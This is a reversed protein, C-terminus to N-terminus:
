HPQANGAREADIRAKIALSFKRWDGRQWRWLNAMGRVWEDATFALWVGVLGLPTHLGLGWALPVALGWMSFSGMVVPFKTDGAARLANIVILNFTRGTEVLVCLRMIPVGVALYDAQHTFIRLIPEAFLTVFIGLTATICWGVILSRKLQRAAGALDGAGVQYGIVVETALGLAQGCVMILGSVQRVFSQAVMAKAGLLGIVKIILMFSLHYSVNEAAAPAGIAIVPKLRQWNLKWLLAPRWVLGLRRRQLYWIGALFGSRSVLPVIALGVMKDQMPAHWAYLVLYLGILQLGYSAVTMNFCARAQGYARLLAILCLNPAELLLVLAFVHLYPKAYPMLEPPFSWARLIPGAGVFLAMACLLGMWLSATLASSAVELAAPREGAGLYQSVVVGAGMTVFRFLVFCFLILLFVTGTAASAAESQRSVLWTTFVGMGMHILMEGMIPVAVSQIAPVTSKVTHQPM